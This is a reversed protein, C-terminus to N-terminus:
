AASLCIVGYRLVAQVGPRVPRDPQREKAAVRWHISQPHIPPTGPRLASLIEELYRQADSWGPAYVLLSASALALLSASMPLTATWAQCNAVPVELAVLQALIVPFLPMPGVAGDGLPRTVDLAALLHDRAQQSNERQAELRALGVFAEPCHGVEVAQRYFAAAKEEQRAQEYVSGLGM